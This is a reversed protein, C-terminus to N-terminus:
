KSNDKSKVLQAKKNRSLKKLNYERSAAESHSTHKEIYKLKVPRRGRTYKAGGKEEGNHQKLRLEIDKAIGIYYTGDSCQVIYTFYSDM